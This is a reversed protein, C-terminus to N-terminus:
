CVIFYVSFLLFNQMLMGTLNQLLGQLFPVLKNKVADDLPVRNPSSTSNQFLIDLLGCNCQIEFSTLLLLVFVGVNGM